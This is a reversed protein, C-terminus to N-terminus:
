FINCKKTQVNKYKKIEKVFLSQNYNPSLMIVENKTRTLAVYFLRREEAYKINEEEMILTKLISDTKIKSPFGLIDNVLNILIVNDYGLGKSAHITMYDIKIDPNKVYIIKNNKEKINKNDIIKNKDFTYRGLILINKKNGYKKILYEITQILSKEFKNSKYKIITIPCKLKKNSKLNKKIQKQNKLIFKGAIDILEQSNRYTNTIKLTESKEVYKKFQTFLNINSSAFSYICQWDDGVVMIKSNIKKSINKILEFRCDSIDQYEDIIIYKYNLNVKIQEKIVENAKNIMDDFDILNNEQLYNQYYIYLEKIFNIFIKTRKTTCNIKDFDKLYYGKSKFLSIFTKCFNIFRKYTIDKNNLILSEFIKQENKNILNINKNTLNIELTELINDNYIEILETKNKKHIKRIIDINKKYKFKNINNMNFYEIYYTKDQYYITFDPKYNNNYKYPKQYDYNINKMFLYNAIIVENLSNMYENNINKNEKNNERTTNNIYEIKSKLTPYKQKNKYRYYKDFNSYLLLEESIDFYYIYLELFQKIKKMNNILHKEIYKKIIEDNDKIIRTKKSTNNKIIEYGFKHFTTVKVNHKFDKNIREDLEKVAKNTFSIVIIEKDKINLKEILYNVKASITTTKGSGAGAIVMLYDEDTLVIKRQDEDLLINKDVNTFMNDFYQKEEVLKKNIFNQNNKIRELETLNNEKYSIYKLNIVWFFYVIFHIKKRTFM